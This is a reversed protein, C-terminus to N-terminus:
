QIINLYKEIPVGIEEAHYFKIICLDVLNHESKIMISELNLNRHIIKKRHIHNLAELLKYFIEALNKENLKFYDNLRFRLDKGIFNDFVLHLNNRDEYVELLNQISNLRFRRLFKIEQIYM